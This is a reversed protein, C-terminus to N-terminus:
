RQSRNHVYPGAVFAFCIVGTLIAALVTIFIREFTIAVFAFIAALALAAIINLGFLVFGFVSGSVIGAVAILLKKFGLGGLWIFLGVLVM